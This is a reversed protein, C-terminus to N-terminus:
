PERSRLAAYGAEGLRLGLAELADPDLRAAGNMGARRAVGLVCAAPV